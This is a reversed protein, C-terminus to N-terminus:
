LRLKGCRPFIDDTTYISFSFQFNWQWVNSTRIVFSIECNFHICVCYWIWACSPRDLFELFTLRTQFHVKHIPQDQTKLKWSMGFFIIVSTHAHIHTLHLSVPLDSSYVLQKRNEELHLGLLGLFLGLTLQLSCILTQLIHNMIM